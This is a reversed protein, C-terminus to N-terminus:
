RAERETPSGKHLYRAERTCNIHCGASVPKWTDISGQPPGGADDPKGTTYLVAEPMSRGGPTGRQRAEPRPDLFVTVTAGPMKALIPGCLPGRKPATNKNETLFPAAFTSGKKANNRDGLAVATHGCYWDKCPCTGYPRCTESVKESAGRGGREGGGRRKSEGDGVKERGEGKRAMGKGGGQERRGEVEERSRGNERKVFRKHWRLRAAEAHPM